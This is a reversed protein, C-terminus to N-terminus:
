GLAWVLCGAWGALSALLIALAAFGAWAPAPLIVGLPLHQDRPLLTAILWQAFTVCLAVVFPAAGVGSVLGAALIAVPALIAVAGYLLTM